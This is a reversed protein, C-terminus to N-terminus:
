QKAYRQQRWTIRLKAKANRQASNRPKADFDQGVTSYVYFLEAQAESDNVQLFSVGGRATIRRKSNVRCHCLSIFREILRPVTNAILENSSQAAAAPRVDLPVSSANDL